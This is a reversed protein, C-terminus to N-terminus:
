SIFSKSFLAECAFSSVNKKKKKKAWNQDKSMCIIFLTLLIMKMAQLQNLNTLIYTFLMTIDHQVQLFFSFPLMQILYSAKCADANVKTECCQVLNLERTQFVKQM